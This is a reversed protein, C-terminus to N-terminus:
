NQLSARANIYGIQQRIPTPLPSERLKLEAAEWTFFPFHSGFCLQTPPLSKLIRTIGASGELTGIDFTVNPPIGRQLWQQAAPSHLANLLQIKSTPFEAAIPELPALDLDKARLLPPQTREDEMRVVIQLLLNRSLSLQLLDRFRAHALDYGHYTPTIRLIRMGHQEACRRVDDQWDPLMPNIAGSPILLDPATNCDDALRKNVSAIDRHLLMDFSGVWAQAVKLERLRAVLAPTDDYPLRRAPWRSLWVNVDIIGNM